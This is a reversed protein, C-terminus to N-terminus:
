LSLQNQFDIKSRKSLPRKVCTKSYKSLIINLLANISNEAFQICPICFDLGARSAERSPRVVEKVMHGIHESREYPRHPRVCFVQTMLCTVTVFM